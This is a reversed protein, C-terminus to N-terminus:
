KYLSFRKTIQSVVDHRGFLVASYYIHEDQGKKAINDIQELYTGGTMSDVFAFQIIEQEKASLIAKKIDCSKGRLVIYPMGSVKWDNGSADVNSQLFAMDPGLTAGIAFSTHAIANMAVGIDIDKNVIVVLKNEFIM